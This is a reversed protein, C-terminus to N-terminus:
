RRYNQDGGFDSDCYGLLVDDSQGFCIGHNQTGKLYALIRPLASLHDPGPDECFQSLKGVAFSIDPRSALGLYRLSGVAERYPFKETSSKDIKRQLRAGPDAPLNRPVCDMMNFRKLIKQIYDPQTVYLTRDQHNMSISLGVFHNATGQRMDSHKGLYSIIEEILSKNNSAVLGDDVWIAVSVFEEEHHRLYLCPDANSLRQGFKRLFADFTANWVRSAQKLGYLCKYLHCVSTEKVSIIFGEPQQHYIEGDLEGYLFATKIDLQSLKLNQAAVFSLIIRLTDYKVVTKGYDIGSRQSFRKAVQV